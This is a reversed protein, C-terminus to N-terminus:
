EWSRTTTPGPPGLIPSTGARPYLPDPRYGSGVRVLPILASPQSVQSFMEPDCPSPPARSPQSQLTPSLGQIVDEPLDYPRASPQSNKLSWRGACSSWIKMACLISSRRVVTSPTANQCPLVLGRRRASALRRHPRRSCYAPTYGCFLRYAYPSFVTM